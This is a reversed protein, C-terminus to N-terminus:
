STIVIYLFKIAAYRRKDEDKKWPDFNTEVLFWRDDNLMTVNAAHMRDRTIIAGEGRNRGGIIIYSPSFLHRNALHNVADLYTRSSSLVERLLFGVPTRFRTFFEM